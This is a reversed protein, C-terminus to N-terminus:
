GRRSHIFRHHASCFTILNELTNQGGNAVPILHHIETWRTQKCNQGESNSFTCQRRDRLNVQHLINAPVPSRGTRHVQIAVPSSTVHRRAIKATIIEDTTINTETEVERTIEATAEATIENSTSKKVAVRQAKILPDKHQLYFETMTVLTDELSATTSRSQSVLDQAKRLAFLNEESLGLELKVREETVYSAREPVASLPRIKVIEKELQRQSLTSAKSLWEDQNQPTIVPAIKRANSLTINGAKIEAKLQPIEKTKRMVAILNYTVSESLKLEHISYQFLSSHGYRLHVLHHEVQELAEILEVETNKYRVSTDLARQHIQTHIHYIKQNM